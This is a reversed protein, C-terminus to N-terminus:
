ARKWPRDRTNDLCIFALAEPAGDIDLLTFFSLVAEVARGSRGRLRLETSAEEQRLTSLHDRIAQWRDYDAADVLEGFRMGRLTEPRYGLMKGFSGNVELCEGDLTLWGIGAAAGAFLRRFRQEGMRLARNALLEGRKREQEQIWHERYRAFMELLLVFAIACLCYVVMVAAESVREPHHAIRLLALAVAVGIISWSFPAGSRGLNVFRNFVLLPFFWLLYIIFSSVLREDALSILAGMGLYALFFGSILPALWPKRDIPWVFMLALIGATFVASSGILWAEFEDVEGLGRGVTLGLVAGALVLVLAVRLINRAPRMRWDDQVISNDTADVPVYVPGEGKDGAMVRGTPGAFRM